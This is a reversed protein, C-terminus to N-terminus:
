KVENGRCISLFVSLLAKIHEHFILNLAIEFRAPQSTEATASRFFKPVLVRLAQTMTSSHRGGSQSNLHWRYNWHLAGVPFQFDDGRFCGSNSVPNEKRDEVRDM